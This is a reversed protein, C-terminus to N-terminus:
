APSRLPSILSHFTGNIATSPRQNSNIATRALNLQPLHRQHDNITTSQQQNGNIADRILHTRALVLMLALPSQDSMLPGDPHELVVLLDPPEVRAAVVLLHDRPVYLLELLDFRKVPVLVLHVALRQVQLPALAEFAADEESAVRRTSHILPVDLAPLERVRPLRVLARHPAHEHRAEGEDRAPQVPHDLQPIWARSLEDPLEVTVVLGHAGEGHLRVDEVRAGHVVDDLHPIPLVARAQARHVAVALRHGVQAERGFSREERAADVLHDLHPLRWAAPALLPM